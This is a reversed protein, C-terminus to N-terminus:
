PKGACLSSSYRRATIGCSLCALTEARSSGPMPVTSCRRMARSQPTEVMRTAVWQVSASTESCCMPMARLSPTSVTPKRIIACMILASFTSSCAM